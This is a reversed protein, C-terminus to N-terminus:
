QGTRVPPAALRFRAALAWGYGLCALTLAIIAPSPFAATAVAVAAVCVVTDTALIASSRLVVAPDVRYVVINIAGFAATLLGMAASFGYFLGLMNRPVGLVPAATVAAMAERAMLEGAPPAKLLAIVMFSLHAGGLAVLSWSAVTFPRGIARPTVM